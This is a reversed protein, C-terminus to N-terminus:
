FSSSYYWVIKLMNLLEEGVLRVCRKCFETRKHQYDDTLIGKQRTNLYQYGQKKLTHCITSMSVHLLDCVNRLKGATFNPDGSDGLTKIVWKVHAGLTKRAVTMPKM